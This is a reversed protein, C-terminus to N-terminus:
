LKNHQEAESVVLLLLIQQSVVPITVSMWRWHNKWIM